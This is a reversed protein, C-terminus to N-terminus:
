STLYRINIKYYKVIPNDCKEQVGHLEYIKMFYLYM